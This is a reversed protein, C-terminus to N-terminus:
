IIDNIVTRLAFLFLSVMVLSKVGDRPLFNADWFVEGLWPDTDPGDLLDLVFGTGVSVNRVIGAAGDKLKLEHTAVSVWFSDRATPGASYGQADSAAIVVEFPEPISGYGPATGDFTFSGPDYAIWPPLQSGDALTATYTLPWPTFTGGQLGVSFDFSPLLRIGVSTVGQRTTTSSYYPPLASSPNVAFAGSLAPNQDILQQALPIDLQPPNSESILLEFSDSISAMPSSTSGTITIPLSASSASSPLTGSFSLSSSSFSLWSPLGTVNCTISAESVPHGEDDHVAFTSSSLTWSYQSGNRAILPLQSRVPHAVVLTSAAVICPPTFSLSALLLLLFM